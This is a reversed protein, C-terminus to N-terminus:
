IEEKFIWKIFFRWSTSVDEPMTSELKNKMMIRPPPPPLTPGCHPDPSIKCHFLYFSKLFRIRLLNFILEIHLFISFRYLCSVYLTDTNYSKINAINVLPFPTYIQLSQQPFIVMEHLQICCIYFQVISTRKIKYSKIQVLFIKLCGRSHCSNIKIKHRIM